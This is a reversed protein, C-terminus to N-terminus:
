RPARARLEQFWNQTLIVETEETAAASRVMVFRRDDPAVDYIAYTPNLIYSSAPFLVKPQGVEFAAGPRVATGVREQRGNLYFLERGSRAWKPATGGSISVQWRGSAVDPFPRVYVEPTGSEDSSYALWRGDPSLAPATEQAPSTLLPVLTTDGSKVAYIDGSGSENLARRLLLWRGDRSQLVQGFSYPSTLLAQPPGTGDARSM